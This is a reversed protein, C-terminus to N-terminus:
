SSINQFRLSLLTLKRSLKNKSDWNGACQAEQWKWQAPNEKHEAEVVPAKAPNPKQQTQGRGQLPRALTTEALNFRLWPVLYTPVTHLKRPKTEGCCFKFRRVLTKAQNCSLTKGPLCCLFTCGWPTLAPQGCLLPRLGDQSGGKICKDGGGGQDQGICILSNTEGLTRVRTRPNERAGNVCAKRRKQRKAVVMKSQKKGIRVVEYEWM